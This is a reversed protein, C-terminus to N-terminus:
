KFERETKRIVLSLSSFTGIDEESLKPEPDYIYCIVDNSIQSSYTMIGHSIKQM